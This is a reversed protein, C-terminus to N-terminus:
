LYSKKNKQQKSIKEFSKESLTTLSDRKVKESFRYLAGWVNSPSQSNNILNMEMSDLQMEAIDLQKQIRKEENDSLDPRSLEGYLERKKQHIASQKKINDVYENTAYSGKVKKTVNMKNDTESIDTEIYSNPALILYLEIPGKKAFLVSYAHEEPYIWSTQRKKVKQGKQILGM